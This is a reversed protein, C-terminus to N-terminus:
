SKRDRHASGRTTTTTLANSDPAPSAKASTHRGQTPSSSPLVTDSTTSVPTAAVTSPTAAAHSTSRVDSGPAENQRIAKTAGSATGANTLLTAHDANTGPSSPRAPATM